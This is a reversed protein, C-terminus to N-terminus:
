MIAKFIPEFKKLPARRCVKKDVGLLTRFKAKQDGSLRDQVGYRVYHLLSSLDQVRYTDPLEFSIEYTIKM